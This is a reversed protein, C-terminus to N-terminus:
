VDNRKGEGKKMKLYTEVDPLYMELKGTKDATIPDIDVRIGAIEFHDEHLINFFDDERLPGAYEVVMDLDSDNKEMGRCRSGSLVVGIIKVDLGEQEVKAQIYATVMKELDDPDLGDLRHFMARTKNRFAAISNEDANKLTQIQNNEMEKEELLRVNQFVHFDRNELFPTDAM